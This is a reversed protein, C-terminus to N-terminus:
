TPCRFSLRDFLAASLIDLHNERMPRLAALAADLAVADTSVPLLAIRSAAALQALMRRDGPPQVGESPALAIVPRRAAVAENVMSMSDATVIVADAQALLPELSGPGSRRFDVFPGRAAALLADAAHPPTRPSTVAGITVSRPWAAPDLLRALRSWDESTFGRAPSPGGVVVTLFPTSGTWPAPARMRDPDLPTPKLCALHRAGDVDDYGTIWVTVGREPANRLSGCFINQAGTRRALALNATLTAGGASVILDPDVTEVRLGPHDIALVLGAMPGAALPRFLRALRPLRSAAAVREVALPGLRRLAALVGESQRYHGPRGDSLMVVRRAARPKMAEM